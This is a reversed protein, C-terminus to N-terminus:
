MPCLILADLLRARRSVWIIKSLLSMADMGAVGECSRWVSYTLKEPRNFDNSEGSNFLAIMRRMFESTCSAMRRVLVVYWRASSAAPWTRRCVSVLTDSDSAPPMTATSGNVAVDVLTNNFSETYKLDSYRAPSSSNLGDTSENMEIKLSDALLLVMPKRVESRSM